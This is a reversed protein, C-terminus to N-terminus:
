ITTDYPNYVNGNVTIKVQGADPLKAVVSLVGVQSRMWEIHKKIAAQDIESFTSTEIIM